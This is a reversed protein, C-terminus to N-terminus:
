DRTLLRLASFKRDDNLRVELWVAGRECSLRWRGHHQGDGATYDGLASPRNSARVVAIDALTSPLEAPDSLLAALRESMTAWDEALVVAAAAEAHEVLSESPFAHATLRLFQVRAPVLPSLTMWVHCWGRPGAVRWEGRLWNTANIPGSEGTPTGIQARVDRLRELWHAEDCDLMFNDAFLSEALAPDWSQLLRNVGDQAALLASSARRRRPLPEASLRLTELAQEAVGGLPAYTRNGLAVVGFGFEPLWRMHSGYGPVGGSHGASWHSGRDQMQLGLGYGYQTAGNREGARVLLRRRREATQIRMMERLSRRALPGHDPADRAPHASLFLGIWRALDFVTSFLGAFAVVDGGCPLREEEKWVGDEHRQGPALRDPAVDAEDWCTDRMGLPELLQETIYAPAEVGTVNHIVGGLLIYALNTYEFHEGPASSWSIGPALLASMEANTRYLQRDAWPDDQPWGANMALLHRLTLPPSDDTPASVRGLEPLYAHAPDDLRLRGEDRLKLVAAAAFSKTMSAIRYVTDGRPAEHGDPRRVGVGDAYVCIGDVIVGFSIGPINQAAAHQAFMEHLLPAARTLREVRDPQVFAPVPTLANPHQSPM